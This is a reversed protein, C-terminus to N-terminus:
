TLYKNQLLRQLMMVAMQQLTTILSSVGGVPKGGHLTTGQSQIEMGGEKLLAVLQEQTSIRTSSVIHRIMERRKKTAFSDETM